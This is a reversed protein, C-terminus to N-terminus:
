LVYSCSVVISATLLTNSRVVASALGETDEIVTARYSIESQTERIKQERLWWNSVADFNGLEVTSEWNM